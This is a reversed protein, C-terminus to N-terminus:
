SEEYEMVFRGCPAPHERCFSELVDLAECAVLSKVDRRKMKQECLRRLEEGSSEALDNLLHIIYENYIESLESVMGTWESRYEKLREMKKEYEEEMGPIPRAKELEEMLEELRRMRVYFERPIYGLEVLDEHSVNSRVTEDVTYELDTLRDELDYLAKNCYYDYDHGLTEKEEECWRNLMSRLKNLTIKNIHKDPNELFAEAYRRLKEKELVESVRRLAELMERTYYGVGGINLTRM